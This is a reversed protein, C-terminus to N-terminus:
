SWGRISQNISSVVTQKSKYVNHTKVHEYGLYPSDYM